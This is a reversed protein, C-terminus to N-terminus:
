GYMRMLDEAQKMMKPSGTFFPVCQHINESQEGLTNTRFKKAM